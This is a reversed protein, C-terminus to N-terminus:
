VEQNFLVGGTKAPYSSNRAYLTNSGSEFMVSVLDELMGLYEEVFQRNVVQANYVRQKIDKLEKLFIEYDAFNTEDRFIDLFARVNFDRASLNNKFGAHNVFDVMEQRLAEIDHALDNKIGNMQWIADLDSSKLIEREKELADLLQLYLEKKSSCFSKIKIDLGTM